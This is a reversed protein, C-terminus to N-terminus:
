EANDGNSEQEHILALRRSGKRLQCVLETKDPHQIAKIDGKEFMICALELLAVMISDADEQSIEQENILRSHLGVTTEGNVNLTISNESM